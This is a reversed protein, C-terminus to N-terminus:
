TCSVAQLSFHITQINTIDKKCRKEKHKKKKLNKWKSNRLKMIKRKQEELPNLM